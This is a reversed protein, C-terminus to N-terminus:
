DVEAILSDIFAATPDKAEKFATTDPFDLNKIRRYVAAILKKYRAATDPNFDLALSVVDGDKDPPIYDIRAGKIHSGPYDRSNEVLFKYFYLQIEYNRNAKDWKERPKGTKFDALTLKKRSEDYEVRDVMGKLPIDDLFVNGDFFGKESDALTNRLEDGKKDLFASLETEARARLDAKESADADSTAVKQFFREMVQDNNLKEKNLEDMVEHVFKGYDLSFSSEGPAGILYRQLFKDPGGYELDIFTTLHTPSLRYHELSKQLLNRIVENTPRYHDLWLDPSLSDPTLTDPNELKVTQYEKPIVASILKKDGNTANEIEREDLYQLREVKKGTFDSLSYSLHLGARARTAAVFFIRIKEPASDGTHRIFELNRTLAMKDNNGKANSWNKNDCAILFVHDYELGKASHVTELRVATDSEHYPSKDLLLVGANEYADVLALLDRLLLKSRRSKNRLHDRLINLKSYFSILDFDPTDEAPYLKACLAAIVYEASFDVSKTSLDALWLAAEKIEPVKSSCMSEFVTKRANKADQILLIVDSPSIKWAPLSLARLWHEEAARASESLAVILRCIHLFSVLAPDDLINERRAYSVPIDLAHLFPLISILHTHKPALVAIKNGKTGDKLLQKIDRAVASYEAPASLFERLSIDTSKPPNEATIRKDINVNPAKCFRDDSQEIINHAFKLIPTSSRYNKTLFIQKPHYHADFDFFNSSNAGQFGYIAQDDDGVAMINPRGDNAPNDTLLSVLKAQADNTDQFEDLLLYQFREQANYRAAEDNSLLDIAQLIMDAYDFLGHEELREQYREMIDALTNLKLNAVKGKLVYDNNKDKDFWRKRWAGLAKTSPKPSNEEKLLAEILERQMMTALAEIKGVIPEPHKEVFSKLATLIEQYAVNAKPYRLGKARKLPEALASSILGADVTNRSIIKRLTDSTITASKIEKIGDVIAKTQSEPRLLDSPHLTAQIERVITFQDLEDVVSTLDPRHEQLIFSGFSHYTHIQVKYADTGIFSALRERMNTAAAETYTLCLISEPSTDTQKLINAIRVSLLQTKGTGPGAIVLLPGDLYDVAAKQDSNLKNYVQEFEM